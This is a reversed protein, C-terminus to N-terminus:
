GIKEIDKDLGCPRRKEFDGILWGVGDPFANESVM